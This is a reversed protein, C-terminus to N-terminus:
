DAEKEANLEKEMLLRYEALTQDFKKLRNQKERQRQVEKKLLSYTPLFLVFLPYSFLIAIVDGLANKSYTPNVSNFGTRYALKGVISASLFFYPVAMLSGGVIPWYKMPCGLSITVITSIAASVAILVIFNFEHEDFKNLRDPEDAGFNFRDLFVRSYIYKFLPM